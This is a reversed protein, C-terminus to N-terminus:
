LNYSKTDIIEFNNQEDNEDNEDNDSCIMLEIADKSNQMIELVKEFENSDFLENLFM